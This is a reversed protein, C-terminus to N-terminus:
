EVQPQYRFNFRGAPAVDGSTYFDMINGLAQFNDAWKFDLCLTKDNKGLGLCERPVALHLESGEARCSVEAVKEWAWGGENKELLATGSDPTHRRILFDYGEWGTERKEDVDIFLMMWNPDQFSSLPQATKAYFYVHTKDRAVKMVRLENRGTKNEYHLRAVGAHDRPLTEGPPDVYEPGVSEWQSFPGQLDITKRPSAKPLLPMGKYRRVGSVLQYYYNDEHGGKMMEIDRSFEESFQDVFM